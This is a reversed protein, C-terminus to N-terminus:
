KAWRRWRENLVFGPPELLFRLDISSVGQLFGVLCAFTLGAALWGLVIDRQRATHVRALVYLAVGVHAILGVLPRTRSTSIVYSDYHLLGVGYTTLWLLFYLLLIIAGPNVRRAHATRRVVVFGLVVLGFSALAVMRAPSGNGKLAGPLVVVTPLVPIVFCLFRLLWPTRAASPSPDTPAPPTTPGATTMTLGAADIRDADRVDTGDGEPEDRLHSDPNPSLEDVEPGRRRRIKPKRRRVLLVDVLVTVLVTLGLGAVFVSATARTRSPMGAVPRSPPSVVFSAVMMEAPVGAQQQISQLSATVEDTVLGLTKTAAAADAATEEIMILPLPPTNPPGPFLKASYDPLGGAAVVRYVVAPQRVGLAAMNALLPPGGSDLLGNIPVPQGLVAQDLRSNPPALGIVAQSYYVPKVATYVQHTYWGTILLLPLLIYWRRFCARVVDFLDM